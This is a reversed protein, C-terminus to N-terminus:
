EVQESWTTQKQIQLMHGRRRFPPLTNKVLIEDLRQASVVLAHARAFRLLLDRQLIVM